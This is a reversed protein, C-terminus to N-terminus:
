LSLRQSKLTNFGKLNVGYFGYKCLFIFLRINNWYVYSLVNWRPASKRVFRFTPLSNQYVHLIYAIGFVNTSFRCHYPLFLVFSHSVSDIFTYLENSYCYSKNFIIALHCLVFSDFFNGQNSLARIMLFFANVCTVEKRFEAREVGFDSATAYFIYLATSLITVWSIIAIWTDLGFPKLIANWSM